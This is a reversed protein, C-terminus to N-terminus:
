WLEWDPRGAGFRGNEKQNELLINKDPGDRGSNGIQADQGLGVMKKKIEWDIITLDM